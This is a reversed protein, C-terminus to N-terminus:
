TTSAATGLRASEVREHASWDLTLRFLYQTIDDASVHTACGGLAVIADDYMLVASVAKIKIDYGGLLQTRTSLL